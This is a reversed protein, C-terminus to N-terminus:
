AQVLGLIQLLSPQSNKGYSSAAYIQHYATDTYYRINRSQSLTRAMKTLKERKEPSHLTQLITHMGASTMPFFLAAKDVHNEIASTRLDTNKWVDQMTSSFLFPKGFTLAHTLAGSAGMLGRYPLVVLDAAAFYLAIDKEPVFGTICINKNLGAKKTLESYFNQYHSRTQLSHAPGGALILMTKEGLKTKAYLNMAGALWDSGKYSSLFGFSIIVKRNAPIHLSKRAKTRSMTKAIAVPITSSIIPTSPLLKELREKLAEDLVVIRDVLRGLMITHLRILLNTSDIIYPNTDIGLHTQLFTIDTIVNHAFYTIHKGTIRILALFPLILGYHILGTGAGFESHVFVHPINDFKRLWRIIAPYLSRRSPSFVRLILIKGHEVLEPKNDFGEEALVVFKTGKKRAIDTLALKTYWAVGHNIEQKGAKQPWASVVLCTDPTNFKAIIRDINKM